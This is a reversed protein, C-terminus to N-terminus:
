TKAATATLDAAVTPAASIDLSPRLLHTWAKCDGTSCFPCSDPCGAPRAPHIQNSLAGTLRLIHFWASELRYAQLPSERTRWAVYTAIPLLPHRALRTQICNDSRGVYFPVEMRLLMYVGPWGPPVFARVVSPNAVFAVQRPEEFLLEPCSPM